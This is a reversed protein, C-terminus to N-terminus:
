GKIRKGCVDLAQKLEVETIGLRNFSEKVKKRSSLSIIMATILFVFLLVVGILGGLLIVLLVGIGQLVLVTIGTTKQEAVSKKWQDLLEKDIPKEFDEPSLNEAVKNSVTMKINGTVPSILSSEEEEEAKEHLYHVALLIVAISLIIGFISFNHFMYGRAIPIVIGIVSFLIILVSVLRINKREFKLLLLVALALLVLNALLGVINSILFIGPMDYNDFLSLIGQIAPILTAIALLVFAINRRNETKDSNGAPHYFVGFLLMLVVILASILWFWFPVTHQIWNFVSGILSVVAGVIFAIAISKERRREPFYQKVSKPGAGYRNQGSQGDTCFLVLLWIVGVLPILAILMWWGSKGLDHLRRVEVALAPLLTALMYTLYCPGYSLMPSGSDVTIKWGAVLDIFMAVTAAIFNFLVFYWFEKRRARGSFDAYQRLVKLYWKM